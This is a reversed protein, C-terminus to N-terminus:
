RLKWNVQFLILHSWAWLVNGIFSRFNWIRGLETKVGSSCDFTLVWKDLKVWSGLNDAWSRVVWFVRGVGAHHWVLWGPWNGLAWSVRGMLVPPLQILCVISGWWNSDLGSRIFNRFRKEASSFGFSVSRSSNEFSMHFVFRNLHSHVMRSNSSIFRQDSYIM